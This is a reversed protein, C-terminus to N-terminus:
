TKLISCDKQAYIIDKYIKDLNVMGKYEGKTVYPVYHYNIISLAKILEDLSADEHLFFISRSMISHVKIDKEFHHVKLDKISVVGVLEGEKVVPLLRTNLKKFREYLNEVTENLDLPELYEVYKNIDMHRLFNIVCPNSIDIGRQLLSRKFYSGPEFKSVFFSTISSTMLIPLLLQYSHTLEIIIISSRLPAKSIGALMAATGVLALVKPDAGFHQFFYGLFYGGFAGIFISPSMLGGFIGVGITLIVAIIKIFM